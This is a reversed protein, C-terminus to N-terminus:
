WWLPIYLVGSAAMTAVLWRWERLLYAVPPMAMYGLASGMFVGLSSFVVRERPGLTECGSDCLLLHWPCADPTLRHM